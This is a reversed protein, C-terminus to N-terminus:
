RKSWSHAPAFRGFRRRSGRTSGAPPLRAGAAFSARASARLAHSDRRRLPSPQRPPPCSRASSSTLRGSAVPQSRGRSRRWDPHSRGTMTNDATAGFGARTRSNRGCPTKSLGKGISARSRSTREPHRKTAGGPNSPEVALQFVAQSSSRRSSHRSPRCQSQHPTAAPPRRPQQPTACRSPPATARGPCSRVPSPNPRPTRRRQGTKRVAIALASAARSITSANIIAAAAPKKTRDSAYTAAHSCRYLRAVIFPLSRIGRFAVM